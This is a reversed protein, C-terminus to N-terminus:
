ETKAEVKIHCTKCKTPGAPLGLEKITYEHCGKCRLHFAKYAKPAGPMGESQHAKDKHCNSCALIPGGPELKHHCTTCDNSRLSAHLAHNFTVGGFKSDFYVVAKEEPVVLEGAVGWLPFILLGLLLM